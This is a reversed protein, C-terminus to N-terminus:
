NVPQDTQGGLLAKLATVHLSCHGPIWPSPQAGSGWSAVQAFGVHAWNGARSWSASGKPSYATVGSNTQLRHGSPWGEPRGWVGLYGWPSNQWKPGSQFGSLIPLGLIGM